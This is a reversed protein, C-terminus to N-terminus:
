ERHAVLGTQVMLVRGVMILEDPIKVREMMEVAKAWARKRPLNEHLQIAEAIQDGATYVPNLSSMPDQFIMAIERGRLRRMAESDLKMLDRGNFNIEGDVIKGPPPVLRLISLSTVSKGSGSEGVLALTSGRPIAFSVADVAKVVGARTFFHTSLNKIELINDTM